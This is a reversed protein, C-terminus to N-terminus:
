GSVIDGPDASGYRESVSQSSQGLAGAIGSWSFGEERALAVFHQEQMALWRRLEGVATLAQIPDRPSSEIVNVATRPEMGVPNGMNGPGCGLPWRALPLCRGGPQRLAVADALLSAGLSGGSVGLHKMNLEYPYGQAVGSSTLAPPDAFGRTRSRPIRQVEDLGLASVEGFRDPDDDVLATGYAVVTDNVTHWDCALEVAVENVSRDLAGESASTM